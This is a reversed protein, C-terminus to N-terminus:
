APYGAGLLWAFLVCNSAVTAWFKVQFAAKRTKHHLRDQAVLGGPWGGLLDVLHLTRERTRMAGARAASKDHRYLVFAVVSMVSYSIAFLPPVLGGASGALLAGLAAIAAVTRWGATRGNRHHPMWPAFNQNFPSRARHVRFPRISVVPALPSPEAGRAWRGRLISFHEPRPRRCGDDPAHAHRNQM